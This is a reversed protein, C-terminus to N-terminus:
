SAATLGPRQRSCRSTCAGGSAGSGAAAKWGRGPSVSFSLGTNVRVGRPRAYWGGAHQACRLRLAAQGGPGCASYTRRVRVLRPRATRVACRTTCWLSLRACATQTPTPPGAEPQATSGCSGGSRAWSQHAAGGGHVCATCGETTWAAVRRRVPQLGDVYLSCGTSMCAAVGTGWLSCGEGGVPQLGVDGQSCGGADWAAGGQM